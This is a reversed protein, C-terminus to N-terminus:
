PRPRGKLGTLVAGTVAVTMLALVAMVVGIM